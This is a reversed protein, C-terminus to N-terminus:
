VDKRGHTSDPSATAQANLGERPFDRERAIGSAKWAGDEKNFVWVVSESGPTGHDDWDYRTLVLAKTEGVFALIDLALDTLTRLNLDEERITSDVNAHFLAGVQGTVYPSLADWDSYNWNWIARIAREAGELLEARRADESLMDHM